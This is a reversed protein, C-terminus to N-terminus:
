QCDENEQKVLGSRHSIAFRIKGLYEYDEAHLFIPYTRLHVRQHRMPTFQKGIPMLTSLAVTKTGTTPVSKRKDKESGTDAARRADPNGAQRVCSKGPFRLPVAAPCTRLCSAPRFLCSFPGSRTEEPPVKCFFAAM